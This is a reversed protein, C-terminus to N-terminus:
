PAHALVLGTQFYRDPDSLLPIRGRLQETPVGKWHGWDGSDKPKQMSDAFVILLGGWVFTM